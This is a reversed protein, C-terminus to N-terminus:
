NEEDENDSTSSSYECSDVLSTGGIYHGNEHEEFTFYPEWMVLEGFEDRERVMWLLQGQEVMYDYVEGAELGHDLGWADYCDWVTIEPHESKDIQSMIKKASGEGCGKKAAKSLGYDERIIDPCYPLGRINDVRDGALLQYYFHRTAQEETIWKTERTRPNYHWGPTNNLDKDPSSVISSSLEKNGKANCYDEWLKMSVADDAELGDCKIANWVSVMYERIEEYSEPKRGSRTAKYGDSLAIDERFNGKGSIYLEYDKADTDKLIQELARKVLNLAHSIPEGEAAFGCAYVLQDADIFVKDM